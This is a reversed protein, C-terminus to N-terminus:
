GPEVRDMRELASVRYRQSTPVYGHMGISTFGASRIMRQYEAAPRPAPWNTDGEFADSRTFLELYAVGATRRLVQTLGRRLSLIPVYNLMGCCVVLDYHKRLSLTDLDEIGGLQLARKSGFRAVAYESPDVGDYHLNRRLRLLPARWNGEGCGVDLVSKVPRGLVWEALHVVFEVQRRLETASKVRHTPHRYWKDFYAKDYSRTLPDGLLRPRHRHRLAV